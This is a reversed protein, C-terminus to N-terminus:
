ENDKNLNYKTFKGDKSAKITGEKIYNAILTAATRVGCDNIKCLESILNERSIPYNLTILTQSSTEQKEILMETSENFVAKINLQKGERIKTSKILFGKSNDSIAISSVVKQEFVSGLHGRAKSSIGSDENQHVIAIIACDTKEIGNMFKSVVQNAQEIDNINSVFDALQDIIIVYPPYQKIIEKLEVIKKELPTTVADFFLLNSHREEPVTELVKLLRRQLHYKSMETSIYLIYKDDPCIKYELHLDEKGTLLGVMLNMALRSKGSGVEGKILMLSSNTLLESESKKILIVPQMYKDNEKVLQM